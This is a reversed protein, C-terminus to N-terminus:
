KLIVYSKVLDQDKKKKEKKYKICKKTMVDRNEERGEDCSVFSSDVPLFDFVCILESWDRRVSTSPMLAAMSLLLSCSRFSLVNSTSCTASNCCLTVNKKKNMQRNM